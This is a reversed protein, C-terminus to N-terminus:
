SAAEPTVLLASYSQDFDVRIRGNFATTVKISLLGTAPDYRTWHVANAPDTSQRSDYTLTANVGLVDAYSPLLLHKGLNIKIVGNANFQATGVYAVLTGITASLSEGYGNAGAAFSRLPNDKVTTRGLATYTGATMDLTIPRKYFGHFQNQTFLLDAIAQGAASAKFIVGTTLQQQNSYFKNGVFSKFLVQGNMIHCCNDFTNGVFLCAADNYIDMGINNPEAKTEDGPNGNWIHALYVSTSSTIKLQKKGTDINGGIIMTDATESIIATGSRSAVPNDAYSEAFGSIRPNIICADASYNLPGLQLGFERQGWGLCTSNIWKFAQSRQINCGNAVQNCQLTVENFGFGWLETNPVLHEIMARGSDFVPTQKASITGNHVIVGDCSAASLPSTIFFNQGGLDLTRQLKRRNTATISGLYALAAQIGTTSDADVQVGEFDLVSVRDDLKSQVSRTAFTATKKALAVLAAGEGDLSSGLTMFDSQLQKTRATLAAAQRNMPATDNGGLLRWNTADIEFQPVDPWGATDAINGM